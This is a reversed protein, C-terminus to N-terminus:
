HQLVIRKVIVAGDVTLRALYIGSAQDSLDVEFSPQM